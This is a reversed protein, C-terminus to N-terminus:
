LGFLPRIQGEFLLLLTAAIIFPLGLTTLEQKFVVLRVLSLLVLVIGAFPVMVLSLPWGLALVLLTTLEIEGIDFYRDTRTRLVRLFIYWVAACVFALGIPLFYHIAVYPVFFSFGRFLPLFSYYQVLSTYAALVLDLVVTGVLMRRMFIRFQKGPRYQLYAALSTAVLLWQLALPGKLVFL